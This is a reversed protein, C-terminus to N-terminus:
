PPQAGSGPPFSGPRPIQRQGTPSHTSRHAALIRVGFPPARQFIPTAPLSSASRRAADRRPPCPFYLPLPHVLNAYTIQGLFEAHPGALLDKGEELRDAALSLQPGAM